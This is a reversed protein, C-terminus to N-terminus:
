SYLHCVSSRARPGPANGPEPARFSRMVSTARSFRSSARTVSSRSLKFFAAAYKALSDRHLVRENLDMCVLMAHGTQTPHQLDTATPDRGPLPAGVTHASLAIAEQDLPHPHQVLLCALGVARPSHPPEQLPHAFRTAAMPHGPQSAHSADHRLASLPIDPGDLVALLFGRRHRIAQVLLKRDRRLITHSGGIESNHRGTRPPKIHRDDQIQIRAPDDAPGHTGPLTRRDDDVGLEHRPALPARAAPEQMVTVLAVLISGTDVLPEEGSSTHDGAHTALAIAVIVRRDLAEETRQLVLSDPMPAELMLGFGAVGDRLINLHEVIALSQM